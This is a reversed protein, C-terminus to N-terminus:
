VGCAGSLVFDHDTRLLCERRRPCREGGQRNGGSSGAASWGRWPCTGRTLRPRSPGDLRCKWACDVGPAKSAAPIVTPIYNL